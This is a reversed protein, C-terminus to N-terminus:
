HMAHNNIKERHLFECIRKIAELRKDDNMSKLKELSMGSSFIREYIEGVTELYLFFSPAIKNVILPELEGTKVDFEWSYKSLLSFLKEAFDKSKGDYLTLHGVGDPFDPKRWVENM